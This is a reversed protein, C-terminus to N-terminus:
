RKLEVLLLHITTKGINEAWHTLPERYIVDGDKYTTEKTTGDAAHSRVTGGSLVYVISAPHSHMQEKDGPHLVAELVRVKANDLKVTITKPNVKAVDQAFATLAMLAISAGVLLKRMNMERGQRDDARLVHRVVRALRREHARSVPEGGARPQPLADSEKAGRASRPSPHPDEGTHVADGHALRLGAGREPRRQGRAFRGDGLLHRGHPVVRERRQGRPLAEAVGRTISVAARQWVVQARGTPAARPANRLAEPDPQRRRLHGSDEDNAFEVAMGAAV